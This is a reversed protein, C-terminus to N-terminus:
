DHQEEEQFKNLTKFGYQNIVKTNYPYPVMILELQEPTLGKEGIEKALSPDDDIMMRVQNNVLHPLKSEGGTHILIDHPIKHKKLWKKSDGLLEIPRKSIICIPEGKYALEQIANYRVTDLECEAIYDAQHNDWFDQIDAKHVSPFAKSLDYSVLKDWTPTEEGIHKAISRLSSSYTTLVNDIDIGLM